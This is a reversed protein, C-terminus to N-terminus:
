GVTTPHFGKKMFLECATQVIHQQKRELDPDGVRGIIIRGPKYERRPMNEKSEKPLILRRWAEHTVSGDTM